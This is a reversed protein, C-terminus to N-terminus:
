NWNYEAYLFLLLLKEIVGYIRIALDTRPNRTILKKEVEPVYVCM